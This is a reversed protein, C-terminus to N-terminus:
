GPSCFGRQMKWISGRTGYWAFDGDLEANGPRIQGEQTAGISPDLCEPLRHSEEVCRLTVTGNDQSNFRKLFASLQIGCATPEQPGWEGFHRGAQDQFPM